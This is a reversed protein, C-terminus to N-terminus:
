LAAIKLVIENKQGKYNSRDRTIEGRKSRESNSKPRQKKKTKRM